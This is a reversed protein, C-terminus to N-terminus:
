DRGRRKDESDNTVIFNTMRLGRINIDFPFGITIEWKIHRLRFTSVINKEEFLHATDQLFIVTLFAQGRYNRHSFRTRLPFLRWLKSSLLTGNESVFRCTIWQNTDVFFSGAFFSIHQISCHVLKGGSSTIYYKHYQACYTSPSSSKTAHTAPFPFPLLCVPLHPPPLSASMATRSSACVCPHLLHRTVRMIMDLSDVETGLDSETFLDYYVIQHDKNNAM